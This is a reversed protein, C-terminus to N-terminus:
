QSDPELVFVSRRGGRDYFSQYAPWLKALDPWYRDLENGSAAHGRVTITDRGIQVQARPQARLNLVWPNPREFGPNVNCIVVRDGDRLYLLPVTRAKGTRRGTTTLLLVPARGTLSLRGGTRRYLQRQLPSVVRGIAVVGLRTGGLRQAFGRVAGRIVDLAMGWWQGGRRRGGPGSTVWSPVWRITRGPEGGRDASCDGFLSIQM